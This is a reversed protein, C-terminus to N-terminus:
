PRTGGAATAGAAASSGSPPPSAQLVLLDRASVMGLLKSGSVVPLHRVDHEVMMQAATTIDVEPGAVVPAGSQYRAVKTVNPPAGDATARMLDRDTIVAVLQEGDLVVLSGVGHDRMRAAADALSEEPFTEWVETQMFESVLM